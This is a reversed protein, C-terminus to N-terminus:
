IKWNFILIFDFNLCCCHSYCSDRVYVCARIPFFRFIIVAVAVPNRFESIQLGPIVLLRAAADFMPLVETVGYREHCRSSFFKSTRSIFCFVRPLQTISIFYLSSIPLADCLESILAVTFLRVETIEVFITYFLKTLPM